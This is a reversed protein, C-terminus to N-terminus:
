TMLLVALGYDIGSSCQTKITDSTKKIGMEWGQALLVYRETELESDKFGMVMPGIM